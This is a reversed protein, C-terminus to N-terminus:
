DDLRILDTITICGELSQAAGGGGGKRTADWCGYDDVEVAYETETSGSDGSRATCLFREDDEVEQCRGTENSDAAGRVSYALSKESVGIVASPRICLAVIAAIAILSLLGFFIKGGM